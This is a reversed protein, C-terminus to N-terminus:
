RKRHAERYETPSLGTLKKFSSSFYTPNNFGCLKSVDNVAHDFNELVTKAHSLRVKILYNIPSMGTQKKFHHILYYKCIFVKQALVEVTIDECFYSDIYQKAAAVHKSYKSYESSVFSLKTERKIFLLMLSLYNNAALNSDEDLGRLEKEVNYYYNLLENIKAFKKIHQYEEVRQETEYHTRKEGSEFFQIGEVGIVIYDFGQPNTTSEFHEIYPALIFLDGQELKVASNNLHFVGSGNTICFIETFNHIHKEAVWDKACKISIFYELNPIKTTPVTGRYNLTYTIQKQKETDMGANYVSKNKKYLPFTCHM